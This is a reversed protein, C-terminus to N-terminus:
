SEDAECEDVVEFDSGMQMSFESCDSAGDDIDESEATTQVTEKSEAPTTENTKGLVPVNDGIDMPLDKSIDGSGASIEKENVKDASREKSPEMPPLPIDMDMVPLPDSKGKEQIDVVGSQKQQSPPLSLNQSPPPPAKKEALPREFSPDIGLMKMDELEAKKKSSLVKEKNEDTPNKKETPGTNDDKLKGTFAKLIDQATVKPKDKMVPLPKSKDELTLFMDLSSPKGGGHETKGTGKRLPFAEVKCAGATQKQSDPKSVPTWPPLLPNKKTPIKVAPVVPKIGMKNVINIAIKSKSDQTAEGEKKEPEENTDEEKKVKEKDGSSLNKAKDKDGSSFSFKGFGDGSKVAKIDKPESPSMKPKKAPQEMALEAVPKEWLKEKEQVRQKKLENKEKRDEKKVPKTDKSGSRGTAKDLGRRQEYFENMELYKQYNQYHSDTKIHFDACAEDGAFEKCLTCYFAKCPVLFEQGKVPLVALHENKAHKLPSKMTKPVWPRDYPNLAQQHKKGHLHQLVSYISGSETNCIKCWHGGPDFFEYRKVRVQEPKKRKQVEEKKKPPKNTKIEAEATEEKESEPKLNPDIKCEKLIMLNEEAAKRLKSIQASIDDQLKNNQLLVPDKHGDKQRRIKRMMENQQKRLKELEGELAEIKQRRHEKERLLNNRQKPTLMKRPSVAPQKEPPSKLKDIKPPIVTRSTEKPSITITKKEITITKKEQIEEKFIDINKNVSSKQDSSNRLQPPVGHPPPPPGQFSPGHSPPPNHFVPPPNHTPPFPVNQPPYNGYNPYSSPEFGPPPHGYGYQPPANYVPGVAAGPYPPVTSPHVQTPPATSSNTYNASVNPPYQPQSYSTPQNFASYQTDARSVQRQFSIGSSLSETSLSPDEYTSEEFLDSSPEKVPEVPLVEKKRERDMHDAERVKERDRDRDRNYSDLRRDQEPPKQESKKYRSRTENEHDYRRETSKSPGVKAERMLIDVISEEKKTFLKNKIDDSIGGELFSATQNIGFQEEEKKPKQIPQTNSAKEQMRRSMEFDFGISKLINEITPDYKQKPEEPPAQSTYPLTPSTPQQTTPPIQTPQLNAPMENGSTFLSLLDPKLPQLSFSLLNKKCQPLM